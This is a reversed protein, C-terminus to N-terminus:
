RKKICRQQQQKLHQIRTLGRRSLWVQDLLLKGSGLACVAAGLFGGGVFLVDHSAWRWLGNEEQAWAADLKSLAWSHTSWLLFSALLCVIMLLWVFSQMNREGICNHVFYCHHDMGDVHMLCKSCRSSRLSPRESQPVSFVLSIHQAVFIAWLAQVAVDQGDCSGWSAAMDHTPNGLMLASLNDIILFTNAVVNCHTWSKLESMTERRFLCMYVYYQWVLSLYVLVVTIKGRRAAWLNVVGLSRRRNLEEDVGCSGFVFNACLVLAPLAIVAYVLLWSM